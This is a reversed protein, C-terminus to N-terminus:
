SAPIIIILPKPWDISRIFNVDGSWIEVKDEYEYADVVIRCRHIITDTTAERSAFSIDPLYFIGDTDQYFYWFSFYCRLGTVIDGKNNKVGIVTTHLTDNDFSINIDPDIDRSGGDGLGTSMSCGLILFMSVFVLITSKM